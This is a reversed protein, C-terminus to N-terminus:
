CLLKNFIKKGPTDNNLKKRERRFTCNYQNEMIKYM